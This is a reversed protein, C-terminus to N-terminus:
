PREVTIIYVNQGPVEIELPTTDRSLYKEHILSELIDEEGETTTGGEGGTLTVKRKGAVKVAGTIYVKYKGPPLGDKESLSGVDYTGDAKLYARALVSDSSFIITGTELPKGDPFVVKGGLKLNSGCGTLLIVVFLACILKKM